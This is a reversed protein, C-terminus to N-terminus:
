DDDDDHDRRRGERRREGERGRGRIDHEDGSRHCEVCNEFNRIGEKRHERAIGAPTHEHCGYCTYESFKRANQHCKRCDAPHHRDFRFYQDHAFTAPRWGGTTHCDACNEGVQRHLDDEPRINRHCGACNGAMNGVIHNHDFSAPRWGDTRHCAACNEALQPHLQDAPRQQRHCGACDNRLNAPFLQHSFKGSIQLAAAGRHDSHCDACPIEALHQHFQVKEAAAPLPTGAVSMVGIQAPPHCAACKEAPTGGFPAHCALCDNRIERHGELLEGPNVLAHPYYFLLATFAAVAILHFLAPKM